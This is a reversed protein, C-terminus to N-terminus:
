LLVKMPNNSLNLSVWEIISFLYQGLSFHVMIFAGLKDMSVENNTDYM